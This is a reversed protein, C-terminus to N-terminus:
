GRIAEPCHQLHVEHSTPLECEDCIGPDNGTGGCRRCKSGFTMSGDQYEQPPSTYGEGDCTHCKGM